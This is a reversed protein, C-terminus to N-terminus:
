RAREMRVVAVHGGPQGEGCGTASCPDGQALETTLPVHDVALRLRQLALLGVPDVHGPPVRV